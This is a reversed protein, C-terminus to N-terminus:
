ETQQIIRVAKSVLDELDRRFGFTLVEIGGLSTRRFVIRFHLGSSIIKCELLGHTASSLIKKVWLRLSVPDSELRTLRSMVLHQSEPPLGEIWRCFDLRCPAFVLSALQNIDEASLAQKGKRESVGPTAKRAQGRQELVVSQSEALAGAVDAVSIEFECAAQEAIESLRGEILEEIDKAIKARAVLDPLTRGDHQRRLIRSAMEIWDVLHPMTPDLGNIIAALEQIFADPILDEDSMSGKTRLLQRLETIRWVSNGAVTAIPISRGVRFVAAELLSFEDKPVQIREDILVAKILTRADHVSWALSRRMLLRQALKMGLTDDSM